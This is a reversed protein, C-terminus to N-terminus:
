AAGAGAAPLAKPKKKSAAIMAQTAATVSARVPDLDLRAYIQTAHTSVHGLSKGIVPLSAGSAAQWSGLTRRLDHIRLNGIKARKLLEKWPRKLNVVHGTKGHSPFVWPDGPRSRDKLIKVAEPTLAVVYPVSNKPDPVEWRNDPLSINEWRMSLVDSKRAGTWLSLNVFDRLDRNTEKRLAAFLRALEDPQLFRTRSPEHFRKIKAAPNEGSWLEAEIAFNFLRRVLEAVGNAAFKRDNGLEAHIKQVDARRITGIKRNKWAALHANVTYRVDREAREPRKARQKLHKEIYLDTLENFTPEEANKEFPAPGQFGDTKWKTLDANIRSAEGRAQEISMSDFPGLTKRRPYGLVKAVHFFTKEGSPHVVLGLGRTEPDLVNYRKERAPLRELSRRTFETKSV